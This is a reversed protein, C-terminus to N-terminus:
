GHAVYRCASLPSMFSSICCQIFNWLTKWKVVLLCVTADSAYWSQDPSAASACSRTFKVSFNNSLWFKQLRGKILNMTKSGVNTGRGRYRRSRSRRGQCLLHLEVGWKEFYGPGMLTRGSRAHHTSWDLSYSVQHARDYDPSAVTASHQIIRSNMFHIAPYSIPSLVSSIYTQTADLYSYNFCWIAFQRCPRTHSAPSYTSFNNKRFVTM